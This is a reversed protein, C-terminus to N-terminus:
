NHSMLSELVEHLTRPTFPKAVTADYKFKTVRDFAQGSVLVIPVHPDVARISAALEDGNMGPMTWDTIVLSWDHEAFKRLAQWGNEAEEVEYGEAELFMALVMRIEPEDDVVLVQNAAAEKKMRGRLYQM